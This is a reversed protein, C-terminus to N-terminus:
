IQVIIPGISSQFVMKNCGIQLQKQKIVPPSMTCSLIVSTFKWTHKLNKKFYVWIDTPLFVLSGTSFGSMSGWLMVSQPHKVAPVIFKAEYRCCVKCRMFSSYNSFFRIVSEDSWMIKFWQDISWNRREKCWQLHKSRMRATLLPKRAPKFGRLHLKKLIIRRISCSSLHVFPEAFCSPCLPVVTQFCETEKHTRISMRAHWPAVLHIHLSRNM